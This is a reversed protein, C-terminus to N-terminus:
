FKITRILGRLSLKKFYNDFSVVPCDHKHALYAISLDTYKGLLGNKKLSFGFLSLENRENPEIALCTISQLHGSLWSYQDDNRAGMLIEHFIIDTIAVHNHLLSAALNERAVAKLTGRFYDVWVSTDVITKNM